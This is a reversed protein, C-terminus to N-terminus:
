EDGGAQLIRSHTSCYWCVGPASSTTFSAVELGFCGLSMSIYASMMGPSVAYSAQHLTCLSPMAYVCRRSSYLSRHVCSLAYLSAWCYLGISVFSSLSTLPPACDCADGCRVLRTFIKRWHPCGSVFVTRSSSGFAVRSSMESMRAGPSCPYLSNCAACNASQSRLTM